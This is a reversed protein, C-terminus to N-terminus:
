KKPFMRDADVDTFEYDTNCYHCHVRVAGDDRIIQRMQEEGLSVLVGSLYERSCNCQYVARRLEWVPSTHGFRQKVCTEVDSERLSSLIEALPLDWTKEMTEQEAFPLPQVAIVGAFVCEGDSSLEVCTCIRTPLQESVRYYEEFASDIDGNTPFACSGVFPRSYGDDRIITLSGFHGFCDKENQANMEGTAQTNGIYGRLYLKQNGSVAIEGCTGDSKVSLSIEGRAGKLCASMYTMASLAKGFVYASLNSLGHLRMGEKVMETTNAVTLSVQGDYILTRLLNNM